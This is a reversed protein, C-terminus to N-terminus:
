RSLVIREFCQEVEPAIIMQSHNKNVNKEGSIISSRDTWPFWPEQCLCYFQSAKLYTSINWTWLYSKGLLSFLGMKCAVSSTHKKRKWPSQTSSLQFSALSYLQNDEELSISFLMSHDHTIYGKSQEPNCRRCEKWSPVPPTSENKHKARCFYFAIPSKQHCAALADM